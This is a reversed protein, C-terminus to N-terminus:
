ARAGATARVLAAHLAAPDKAQVWFPKGGRPTVRIASPSSIAGWGAGFLKGGVRDGPPTIGSPDLDALRVRKSGARLTTRTLRTTSYYTTSWMAVAVVGGLIGVLLTSVVWDGAVGLGVWAAVCVGLLIWWARRGSGEEYTLPGPGTTPAGALAKAPTAAALRELEARNRNLYDHVPRSTTEDRVGELLRAEDPTVSVTHSGDRDVVLSFVVVRTPSAAALEKLLDGLVFYVDRPADFDRQELGDPTEVVLARVIATGASEPDVSCEERVVLRLSGAPLAATYSRVVRDLAAQQEASLPIEDDPGVVRRAALKETLWAPTTEPTRPYRLLDLVYLEPALDQAPPGDFDLDAAFRGDAHLTFTAGFWTGAGDRYGDRRLERLTYAVTGPLPGAVVTSGDTLTAVISSRDAHAAATFTLTLATWGDPAVSALGEGIAQYAEPSM